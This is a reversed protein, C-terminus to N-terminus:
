LKEIFSKLPTCPYPAVSIASGYPKFLSAIRRAGDYNWSHVIVVDPVAQETAEAHRVLWEACDYGTKGEYKEGGNNCVSYHSAELDHDFAIVEPVPNKEFFKVFQNYNRVVTWSSDWPERIDDLFLKTM